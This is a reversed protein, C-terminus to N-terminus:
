RIIVICGDHGNQGACGGAGYGIAPMSGQGGNKNPISTSPQGNGGYDVLDYGGGGGGDAAPYGNAGGVSGNGPLAELDDFITARGEIKISSSTDYLEAKGIHYRVIDGAAYQKAGIVLYGSGGGYKAGGAAGSGVLIIKYIGDEPCEWEDFQTASYTVPPGAYAIAEDDKYFGWSLDKSTYGYAHAQSYMYIGDGKTHAVSSYLSFVRARILPETVDTCQFYTYTEPYYSTFAYYLKNIDGNKLGLIRIKNYPYSWPNSSDADVTLIMTASNSTLSSTDLSFPGYRAVGIYATSTSSNGVTFRGPIYIYMGDDTMEMSCPYEGMFNGHSWSSDTPYFHSTQKMVCLNTNSITNYATLSSKVLSVAGYNSSCTFYLLTTDNIFWPYVTIYNSESYNSTSYGGYVSSTYTVASEAIASGPTMSCLYTQYQGYQSAGYRGMWYYRNYTANYYCWLSTPTLGMQAPYYYTSGPTSSARAYAVVSCDARNCIFTAEISRTYYNNNSSTGYAYIGAFSSLRLCFENPKNQVPMIVFQKYWAESTQYSANSTYGSLFVTNSLQLSHTSITGDAHKLLVHIYQSASVDGTATAKIIKAYAEWGTDPDKYATATVADQLFEEIESYPKLTTLVKCYKMDIVEKLLNINQSLGGSSGGGGTLIYQDKSASYVADVWTGAIFGDPDEGSVTKLRKAGTANVNLTAAGSLADFLQFRVLAGDFLSFHAQTLRLSKKTGTARGSAALVEDMARKDVVMGETVIPNQLQLQVNQAVVNGDPDVLNYRPIVETDTSVAVDLIEDVRTKAM